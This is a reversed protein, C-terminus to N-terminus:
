SPTDLSVLNSSTTASDDIPLEQKVSKVFSSLSANLTDSVLRPSASTIIPFSRSKVSESFYPPSSSSADADATITHAPVVKPPNSLPLFCPSSQQFFSFYTQDSRVSTSRRKDLPENSSCTQHPHTPFRFVSNAGISSYKGHKQLPLGSWMSTRWAEHADENKTSTRARILFQNIHYITPQVAKIM